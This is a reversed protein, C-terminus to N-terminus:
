RRKIADDVAMKGERGKCLQAQLEDRVGREDADVADLLKVFHGIENHVRRLAAATNSANSSLIGTWLNADGEALRVMGPLGTGSLPLAEERGVLSSALASSVVHVAHSVIAVSTDHQEPNMRLPKAGCAARIPRM